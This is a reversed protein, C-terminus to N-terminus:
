AGARDAPLLGLSTLTARADEIDDASAAGLPPRVPGGVMGLMAIMEKVLAVNHSGSQLYRNHLANAGKVIPEMLRWAAALDNRSLADAFDGCYPHGPSQVYLPRSSGILFGPVRDTGFATMGFLQYEELPCSVVLAEGVALVMESYGSLSLSAEKVACVNEIEALREALAPTIYFGLEALRTSYFAVGIGVSDAVRQIFDFVGADSRPGYYPPWVMILDAGSAEAHQALRISESVSTHSVGIMLTGGADGLGAALETLRMREATTQTWFEQYISGVYLGTVGPLASITKVNDSFGVEDISGDATYPTTTIAMYGRLSSRAWAKADKREYRSMFNRLKWFTM